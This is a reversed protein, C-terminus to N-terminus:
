SRCLVHSLIADLQPRLLKDVATDCLDFADLAEMIQAQWGTSSKKKKRVEPHCIHALQFLEQIAINDFDDLLLGLADHRPGLQAELEASVGSRRLFGDQPAFIYRLNPRWMFSRAEDFIAYDAFMVIGESSWRRSDVVSYPVLIIDRNEVEPDALADELDSGSECTVLQDYVGSAQALRRQWQRVKRAPTFIVFNGSMRESRMHVLFRVAADANAGAVRPLSNELAAVLYDDISMLASASADARGGRRAKVSNPVERELFGIHMASWFQYESMRLRLRTTALAELGRAQWCKCVLRAALAAAHAQKVKDMRFQSTSDPHSVDAYRQLSRVIEGDLQKLICELLEPDDLPLQTITSEWRALEQQMRLRQLALPQDM